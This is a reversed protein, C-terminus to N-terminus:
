VVDQHVKVRRERGGGLIIDSELVITCRDHPLMLGQHSSRCVCLTEKERWELVNWEVLCDIAQVNAYLTEEVRLYLRVGCLQLSNVSDHVRLLNRGWENKESRSYRM